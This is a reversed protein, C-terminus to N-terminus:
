EQEVKILATLSIFRMYSSIPMGMMQSKKKIIELEGPNLKIRVENNRSM